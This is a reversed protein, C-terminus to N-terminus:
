NVNLETALGRLRHGSAGRAKGLLARTLERALVQYRLWEGGLRRAELCSEIAPEVQGSRCQAQAVDLLYRAYTLPSGAGFQWPPVQRALELARHDDGLDVSASVAKLKASVPGIAPLTWGAPAHEAGLRAGVAALAGVMAEVEDARGARALGTVGLWLAGGYAVLEEPTARSIRPEVAEATRLAVTTAEELRGQRLYVWSLLVDAVAARLPDGAQQAAARARMVALYALDEYGLQTLAQAAVCYTISLPRWVAVSAHEAATAEGGSILEPLAACIATVNGTRYWGAAEEARRTLDAVPLPRAGPQGDPIPTLAARVALVSGPEQGQQLATHQRLLVSLPVDLANSLAYLNDIRATHRRGQELRRIVDVSVGSREALQEQTLGALTRLRALNEGIPPWPHRGGNGSDPSTPENM